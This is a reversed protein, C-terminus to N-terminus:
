AELVINVDIEHTLDQTVLAIPFRPMKLSLKKVTWGPLAKGLEPIMSQAKKAAREFLPLFKKEFVGPQLHVWRAPMPERFYEKAELEPSNFEGVNLICQGNPTLLYDECYAPFNDIKIPAAVTLKEIKAVAQSPIKPEM